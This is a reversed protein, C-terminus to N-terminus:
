LSERSVVSVSCQASDSVRMELRDQISLCHRLCDLMAATPASSVPCAEGWKSHPDVVLLVMNGRITWTSEGGYNTLVSLCELEMEVKAERCFTCM